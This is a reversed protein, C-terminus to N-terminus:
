KRNEQSEQKGAKDLLESLPMEDLGGLVLDAHDFGQDATMHTPVAVAFMGAAKAATVGLATDELSLTAKPDAGLLECARLYPDPDPKHRETDEACVTTRFKEYLGIRKLHGDVWRHSSGSAVALKLGMAKADEILERVGPQTPQEALHGAVVERYQAVVADIDLERGLEAALRRPFREIGVPRGMVELWASEPLPRGFSAFVDRWARWQPHETELILGDFDFVIAEIM